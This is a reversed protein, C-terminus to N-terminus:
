IKLGACFSSKTIIIIKKELLRYFVFMENSDLTNKYPIYSSYLYILIFM